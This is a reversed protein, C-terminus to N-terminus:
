PAFATADIEVLWQPRALARAVVVTSAPRADGLGALRVPAIQALHAEDVVYTNVKILHSVDMGAERLVAVLNAWAVRTQEVAGEALSGDARVGVQGAIHLWRGGGSVLVGHSYAGVPAATDPPQIVQTGM